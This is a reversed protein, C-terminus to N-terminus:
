RKRHRPHTTRHSRAKRAVPRESRDLGAWDQHPLALLSDMLEPLLGAPTNSECNWLVVVGAHYEPLFGIM